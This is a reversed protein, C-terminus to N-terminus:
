GAKRRAPLIRRTDIPGRSRAIEVANRAEYMELPVRKLDLSLALPNGLKEYQSRRMLQYNSVVFIERGYEQSHRKGTHADRQAAARRRVTSIDRVFLFEAISDHGEIEREWRYEPPDRWSVAWRVCTLFEAGLQMPRVLGRVQAEVTTVGSKAEVKAKGSAQAILGSGNLDVTTAGGGVQYGTAKISRGTLYRAGTPAPGM